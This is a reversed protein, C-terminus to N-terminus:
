LHEFDQGGITNDYQITLKWDELTDQWRMTMTCRSWTEDYNKTKLFTTREKTSYQKEEM